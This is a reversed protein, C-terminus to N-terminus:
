IKNKTALLLMIDRGKRGEEMIIHKAQLITTRLVIVNRMLMAMENLNSPNNKHSLEHESVFFLVHSNRVYKIKTNLQSASM